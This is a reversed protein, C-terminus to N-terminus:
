GGPVGVEYASIEGARIRRSLLRVGDTWEAPLYVAAVEALSCTRM